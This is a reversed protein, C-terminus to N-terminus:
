HFCFGARHPAPRTLATRYAAADPSDISSVSPRAGMPPLVLLSSM